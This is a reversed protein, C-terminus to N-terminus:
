WNQGIQGMFQRTKEKWSMEWRGQGQLWAATARDRGESCVLCWCKLIGFICREKRNCRRSISGSEHESASCVLWLTNKGGIKRILGWMFNWKNASASSSARSVCISCVYLDLLAASLSCGWLERLVGPVPFSHCFDDTFSEAEDQLMSCCINGSFPKPDVM